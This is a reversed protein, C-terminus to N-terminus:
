NSLVEYETHKSLNKMSFSDRERALIETVTSLTTERQRDRDLATETEGGGGGGGM